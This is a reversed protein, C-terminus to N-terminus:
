KRFNNFLSTGVNLPQKDEENSLSGESLDPSSHKQLKMLADNKAKRKHRNSEVLYFAMLEPSTCVKLHCFLLILSFLVIFGFRGSISLSRSSEGIPVFPASKENQEEGEDSYDMVGTQTTM